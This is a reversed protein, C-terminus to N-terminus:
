FTIQLDVRTTMLESYDSLRLSCDYASYWHFQSSILKGTFGGSLLFSVSAAEWSPKLTHLRGIRMADESALTRVVAYIPLMDVGDLMWVTHTLTNLDTRM